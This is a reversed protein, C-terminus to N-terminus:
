SRVMATGNTSRWWRGTSISPVRCRGPGAAQLRELMRVLIGDYAERTVPGSPVASCWLLPLVEAGDLRAAELFGTAPLNSGALAPPLESGTVLPPWGDAEAFRDM